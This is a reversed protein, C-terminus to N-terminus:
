TRVHPMGAADNLSLTGTGRLLSQRCRLRVRGALLWYFVSKLLHSSEQSLPIGGRIGGTEDQDRLLLSPCEKSYNPIERASASTSPRRYLSCVLGIM